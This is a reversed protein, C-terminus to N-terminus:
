SGQELISSKDQVQRHNTTFGQTGQSGLLGNVFTLPPVFSELSGCFQRGM